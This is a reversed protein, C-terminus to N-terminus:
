VQNPPITTLSPLLAEIDMNMQNRVDESNNWYVKSKKSSLNILMKLILLGHNTMSLNIHLVYTFLKPM